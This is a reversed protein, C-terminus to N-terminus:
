QIKKRKKIILIAGINHIVSTRAVTVKTQLDNYAEWAGNNRKCVCVYHGISKSNLVRSYVIAASKTTDCDIWLQNEIKMTVEDEKTCNRCHLTKKKTKGSLHITNVPIHKLQVKYTM